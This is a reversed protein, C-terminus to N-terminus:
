IAPAMDDQHITRVIMWSGSSWAAASSRAARRRPTEFADSTRSASLMRRDRSFPSAATSGARRAAPEPADPTGSRPSRCSSYRASEGCPHREDVRRRQQGVEVPVCGPVLLDHRAADAHELLPAREGVVVHEDLGLSQGVPPEPCPHSAAQELVDDRDQLDDPDIGPQVLRRGRRMQAAIPLTRRPRPKGGSRTSSTCAPTRWSGCERTKSLGRPSVHECCVRSRDGDGALHFRLRRERRGRTASPTVWSRGQRSHRAPRPSTSGAATCARCTVRAAAAGLAPSDALSYPSVLPANTAQRGAANDDRTPWRPREDVRWGVQCGPKMFPRRM